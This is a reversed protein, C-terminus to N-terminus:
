TQTGDKADEYSIISSPISKPIGLVKIAADILDNNHNGRRSRFLFDDVLVPTYSQRQQAVLSPLARKTLLSLRHCIAALVVLCLRRLKYVM